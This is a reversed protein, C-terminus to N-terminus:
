FWSHVEEWALDLVVDVREVAAVLPKHSCAELSDLLTPIGFYTIVAELETLIPILTLIVKLDLSTDSDIPRTHDASIWFIGAKTAVNATDGSVKPRLRRIDELISDAYVHQTHDLLGDNDVPLGIYTRLLCETNCSVFTAALRMPCLCNDLLDMERHILDIQGLVTNATFYKTPDDGRVPLLAISELCM